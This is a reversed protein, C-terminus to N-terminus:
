LTNIVFVVLTLVSLNKQKKKRQADKLQNSLERRSDHIDILEGNTFDTAPFGIYFVTLHKFVFIPLASILFAFIDNRKVKRFYVSSNFLCRFLWRLFIRRKTRFLFGYMLVSFGWGWEFSTHFSPFRNAHLKKKWLRNDFLYRRIAHCYAGLLFSFKRQQYWPVFRKKIFPWKTDSFDLYEFFPTSRWWFCLLYLFSNFHDCFVSFPLWSKRRASNSNLQM